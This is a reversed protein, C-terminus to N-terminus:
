EEILKVIEENIVRQDYHTVAFTRANKCMLEAEEPHEIVYVCKEALSEADRPKVILGNYGDDVTNRCGISDTTIVMRGSSQAEMTTMPCGERYSPLVFTTSEELDSRVDKKYGLYEISGDDIYEKIDSLKVTFEEGLFRFAADPYKKKVTRAAECFEFLGKNRVMRSVMLFVNRNIVPKESFFETDVGIGEIVVAKSSEVLDRGIFEDRDDSNLFFVKDAYRFAKKYLMCVISRLMSNKLGTNIFIEGAGEVMAYIKKVGAKKAAMVGFTNPTIQFTFVADPSLKLLLKEYEKELGLKELPNTSRNNSEICYFDVGLEKIEDERDRDFAVVSVRYGKDKLFRILGKRFNVVVVTRPCLLAIHKGNSMRM